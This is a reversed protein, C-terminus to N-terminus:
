EVEDTENTGANGELLLAILPSVEDLMDDEFPPAGSCDISNGARLFFANLRDNHAFRGNDLYCIPSYGVCSQDSRCISGITVPNHDDCRMGVPAEVCVHTEDDCVWCQECDATTVCAQASGLIIALATVILFLKIITM